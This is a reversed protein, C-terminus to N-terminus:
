GKIKRHFVRALTVCIVIGIIFPIAYLFVGEAPASYGMHAIGCLMDHYNYAIVVCMAHSLLFSLVVFLNRLLKNQKM